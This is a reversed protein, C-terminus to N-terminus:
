VLTPLDLKIFASHSASMKSASMHECRQSGVARLSTSGLPSFVTSTSVTPKDAAQGVM